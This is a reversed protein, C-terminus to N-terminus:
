EEGETHAPLALQSRPQPAAQAPAQATLTIAKDAGLDINIVFREGAPGTATEREGVGAVKAFLKAVEVVGPLGEGKNRMRAGLGVLSDELIAAAEISIREKTSLPAHWEICAARYAQRFFDHHQDLYEFQTQTLKFEKLIDDRPRINMALERAMQALEPPSLSPLPGILALTADRVVAPDTVTATVPPVFGGDPPGDGESPAKYINGALVDGFGTDIPDDSM